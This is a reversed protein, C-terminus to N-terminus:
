LQQEYVRVLDCDTQGVSLHGKICDTTARSALTSCVNHLFKVYIVNKM